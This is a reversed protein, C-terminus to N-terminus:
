VLKVCHRGHMCKAVPQNVGHAMLIGTQVEWRMLRIEAYSTLLPMFDCGRISGTSVLLGLGSPLAKGDFYHKGNLADM